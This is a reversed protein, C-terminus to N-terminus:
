HKIWDRVRPDYLPLILDAERGIREYATLCEEMSESIGIPRMRAVNERYFMVDSAIVTGKDTNVKVALSSRHHGGTWFVDVGPVVQDEDDLLRVREWAEIVLHQLVHPPICRERIDHPHTKRRPAHFDIWGRRSLCIQAHPFHDANGLAYWQFPTVIVYSVERPTVGLSALAGPMGGPPFDALHNAAATEASDCGTNILVTHRDSRLVVMWLTLDLRDDFREMWFVESGPVRMAGMKLVDLRFRAM